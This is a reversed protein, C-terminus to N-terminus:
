CTERHIYDRWSYPLRATEKDMRHRRVEIDFGVDNMPEYNEKYEQSSDFHVKIYGANRDVECFNLDYMENITPCLVRNYESETIKVLQNETISGPYKEENLWFYMDLTILEM